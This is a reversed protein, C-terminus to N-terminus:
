DMGPLWLKSKEGGPTSSTATAVNEPTWLSGAPSTAATAAPQPPGGAMRPSGDPNILGLNVLKMYTAEAIGPEKMHKSQLQNMIRSLEGSERRALRLDFESLLYKAPSRGIEKAAQQAKQNLELAKDLDSELQSLIEYADCKDFKGKLDARELAVLASKRLAEVHSVSGARRVVSLLQDDTLRTYEYRALRLLPVAEMDVGAPDLPEQPPLGLSRRLEEFDATQRKQAYEIEYTRILALLRIRYAPDTAVERPTRGGLVKLPQKLLIESMNKQYQEDILKRRVELPTDEPLRWRAVLAEDLAFTQGVKEEKEIM